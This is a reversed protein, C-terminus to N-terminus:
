MDATSSMDNAISESCLLISNFLAGPAISTMSTVHYMYTDTSIRIEM